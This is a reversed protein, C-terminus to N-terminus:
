RSLESTAWQGQFCGGWIGEAVLDERGRGPPSVQALGFRSRRETPESGPRQRQQAWSPAGLFKEGRV